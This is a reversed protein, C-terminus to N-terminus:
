ELECRDDIDHVRRSIDIHMHVTRDLPNDMMCCDKLHWGVEPFKIENEDTM